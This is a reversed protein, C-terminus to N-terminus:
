IALGWKAKALKVIDSDPSSFEWGRELFNKATLENGKIAIWVSFGISALMTAIGVVGLYLSAVFNVAWMLLFLFGLTNLKRLFLPIGFVGAFLFLTWSWGVKVQKLEGTKPNKFTVHISM